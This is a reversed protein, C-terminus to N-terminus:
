DLHHYQTESLKDSEFHVSGLGPVGFNLVTFTPHDAFAVMGGSRSPLQHSALAFVFNKWASQLVPYCLCARQVTMKHSWTFNRSAEKVIYSPDVSYSWYFDVSLKQNLRSLTVVVTVVDYVVKGGKAVEILNNWSWRWAFGDVFTRNKLIRENLQRQCGLVHRHPLQTQMALSPAVYYCVSGAQMPLLVVFFALVLPKM